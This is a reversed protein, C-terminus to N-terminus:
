FLNGRRKEYRVGYHSPTILKNIHKRQKELSRRNVVMLGIKEEIEPTIEDQLLEIGKLFYRYPNLSERKWKLFPHETM